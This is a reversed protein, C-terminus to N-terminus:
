KKIFKKFGIISNDGSNLVQMIYTGPAFSSVNNQWQPQSSTTSAMIKGEVNTINIKYKVRSEGNPQVETRVIDVTPNPYLSIKSIEQQPQATYMLPVINSYNIGGNLDIQKLRYQNLGTVPTKDVLLYNKSNNSYITGIPDFVKGNDTSREVTYITYDAENQAQWTIKAGEAIKDANFALLRVMMAPNQRIILTFRKDGFTEPSSKDINFSYSRNNKIDVSDRTVADKLWVDYLAPISRVETMDFRYTGSNIATAYVPIVEDQTKPFPLHNIALRVSDASLLSLSELAGNGGLDEADENENYATHATDAFTMVVEDNNISDLSLKLRLLPNPQETSQQQQVFERTSMLQILNSSTPQTTTKAAERFSLSQNTSTARIFFGQGSAIMNSAAGTATSNTPNVTTTTDATSTISGSKQKYTEYQKTSPNFVWITSQTVNAAPFNAGYVTSSTSNRNFKEWNITSAYPNGVLCYGRITSNALSTNTYGLLTSGAKYWLAVNITGANPVGLQTFTVDEPYDYPLVTKTGTQTSNDTKNGRFFFLVGNGVPINVTTDNVNQFNNRSQTGINYVPSNNIKNIGKFPGSTFLTSSPKIDERFLYLSPNNANNAPTNFGGGAAGTVYADNLLYTLDFVKLSSVTGTYVPSSILRYGRKSLSTSSGKFFRQIKFNGALSSGSPVVGISASSTADSILTLNGNGNLQSNGSMTIVGTNQIYFNGATITKTGGGSFTVAGFTTGAGGDTFSQASAGDFTLSGSGQTFTASNTFNGSITTAASGLTFFGSNTLSGNLDITGSGQTVTTSNTWSATSTGSTGITITPNNTSINVTGGSTNFSNGITFTSGDVVKTSAGSLVLADYNQPANGITTGDAGTYVTQSGSTAAYIVTAHGTVNPNYFDIYQYQSSTTFSGIPAANTLTLTTNATGASAYFLNRNPTLTSVTTGIDQYKFQGNLTLASNLDFETDNLGTGSNTGSTFNSVSTFALNGQITLLSIQCNIIVKVVGNLAFLGLIIGNPPMTNDGVNFNGKVLMTGLGALTTTYTTLDVNSQGHKATVDGNVTLTFGSNVTLTSNVAGFTLSACTVNSSIAPLNTFTQNTGIRIIDTAASPASAPTSSGVKWNSATSWATSTTGVWDYTTQAM